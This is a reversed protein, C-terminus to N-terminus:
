DRRGRWRQDVRNAMWSIFEPLDSEATEGAWCWDARGSSGAPKIVLTSCRRAIWSEIISEPESISRHRRFLERLTLLIGQRSEELLKEPADIVVGTPEVVRRFFRRIELFHVRRGKRIKEFYPVRLIERFFKEGGEDSPPSPLIVGTQEQVLQMIVKPKERYLNLLAAILEPEESLNKNKAATKILRYLFEVEISAAFFAKGPPQWAGKTLIKSPILNMGKRRYNWTVDLSVSDFPPAEQICICSIAAVEHEFIQALQWGLKQCHAQVFKVLESQGPGAIVYDVDNTIEHPIKGWDHLILALWGERSVAEWYQNLFDVKSAPVM